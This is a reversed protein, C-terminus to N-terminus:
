TSWSAEPRTPGTLHTHERHHAPHGLQHKWAHLLAARRTSDDSLLNAVGLGRLLDLTAQVAERVGPGREDVGLLDVTLRHMERGIRTELPLLAARLEAIPAPPWGCSWHPSSSRGPSPPPSCTWWGTWGNRRRGAARGGRHAAGGARREALHGVAATVLAARTPYHHLQAGRSVGARAAVVTTTTGSWGHEVLCDVTAELLRAQTARSREQQPVRTSAPRM